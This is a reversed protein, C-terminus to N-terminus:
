QRRAIIMTAWVTGVGAAFTLVGAIGTQWHDLADLWTTFHWMEVPMVGREQSARGARGLSERGHSRHFQPAGASATRLRPLVSVSLAPLRWAWRWCCTMTSAQQPRLIWRAPEDCKTSWRRM